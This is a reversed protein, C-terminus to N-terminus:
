APFRATIKPKPQNARHPSLSLTLDVDTVKAGLRVVLKKSAGNQVADFVAHRPSHIEASLVWGNKTLEATQGNFTIEAESVMGWLVEVAQDATVQDEILVASRQALGIRRKWQKLKGPYARSLDMEVWSLDPGFDHRLIKADGRTSQSDGDILLTNHSETRFRPSSPRNRGPSSAGMDEPAPDVAWRVGGADIVFSGLDLHDHDARNDGAKAALFLAAPDDWSSRFTVIEANSFVADLPWNEAAPSRADKFFWILDLADPHADHEAERQEAWAFVRQNFRRALWFLEPATGSDEASESFNFPRGGPGTTYIRYRGTRDFGREASLGFDTDLASELATILLVFAQTAVHWSGPGEPRSGDAAYDAVGHAVSSLASHLVRTAVDPEEDAVALAGAVMGSSAVINFANSSTTWPAPESYAAIGSALGKDVIAQRVWRRDAEDLSHFLWDYAIAFGHTLEATEAFHGRQWSPLLALARLEKLIESLYEPRNDLRFLLGLSHVRDVFRRPTVRAPDRKPDTMVAALFKDADRQLGTYIKRALANEHILARIRELDAESVILRPHERSLSRLPEAPPPIGAQAALFPALGLQALM